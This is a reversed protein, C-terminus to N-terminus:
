CFAPARHVPEFHHRVHNLAHICSIVVTMITGATGPATQSRGPAASTTKLTNQYDGQIRSVRKQLEMLLKIQATSLPEGTLTKAYVARKRIKSRDGQWKCDALTQALREETPGSPQFEQVIEACFAHYADIYEASLFEVDLKRPGASADPRKSLLM